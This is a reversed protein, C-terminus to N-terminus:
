SRSRPRAGLGNLFARIMELIYDIRDDTLGPYVGVFFSRELIANSNSLDGAVRAEIGHFAPHRLINGAFLMRTEVQHDELFRVAQDRSFTADPRVTLPFAFWSPVTGQTAQPLIFAGEYAKLGAYLRDFNHQRKSAFEALREVQALGMACQLDLPKLNYGINTYIYKHDYGPPLNAFNWSFRKRCAGLPHTEGTQCWCARGWDRISRAVRALERDDTAVAGGEGMTIHHAAYFSYTSFVGFTGALQGNCRAGLADCTDEIVHLSHRGAIAMIAPMDCPNGLTHPLFIARTKPGVAAEVRAPAVNYTGIEVDVFVPALGHQLLPALTTPFTMAPTIVEDGPKLRDPCERACLAAVALLNASSGSNVAIAHARGAAEAFAQEFRQGYPGFTLRFDLMSDAMATMERQDFVRGGYHVKSQGPVFPRPQHALQYYGAVRDLVDQKAGAPTARYATWKDRMRELVQALSLIPVGLERRLKDVVFGARLPRPATQGLQSTPMPTLLSQDLGLTAAARVALEHRNVYEECSVNYVGTKGAEVLARVMEALHPAYTPTSYQDVPVRLPERRGLTRILRMLFNKGGPRFDLVVTTRVILSGPLGAALREGELKTRGYCSIPRPTAEEAYPGAGGDFIYDTSIFVLRSSVQQCARVVNATGDVNVRQAEDPHRECYNVDTLAAALITVDPRVEALLQQVAPADAIELPLTGETPHARHTGVVEHKGQHAFDEALAGGVLGTAGIILIKM